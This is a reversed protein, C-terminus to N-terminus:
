ARRQKAQDAWYSKAFDEPKIGHRQEYERAMKQSEAPMDAFGKVRSGTAATRAQGTQVAAPAKTPAPFLEPFEKKVLREAQRLQEAIPVGRQALGNAIEQARLTAGPDVNFWGKNREIFDATEPPVEPGQPTEDKLKIRETVAREAAATDGEEVARAHERQWYADREAIKDALLQSSTHSLRSIQERVGKLERSLSRNIDRSARIFDSAPRWDDPNGAFQDKPKWGMDLALAEVPDTTQETQTDEDASADIVGAEGEGPSLEEDAM